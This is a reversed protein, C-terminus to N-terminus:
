IEDVLCVRAVDVVDICRAIVPTVAVIYAIRIVVDVVISIAIGLFFRKESRCGGESRFDQHYCM